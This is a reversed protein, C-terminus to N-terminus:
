AAAAPRRARRAADLRADHRRGSGVASALSTARIRGRRAQSFGFTRVEGIVTLEVPLGAGRLRAVAAAAVEHGKNPISGGTASWACRTASRSGTPARTSCTTTSAATSSRPDRSRPLYRETTWDAVAQSVAVVQVADSMTAFPRTEAGELRNHLWLVIHEALRRLALRDATVPDNAVVIPTSAARSISRLRSQSRAPVPRLRAVDMRPASRHATNAKRLVPPRPHASGHRLRVAHGEAFLTGGDDPTLITVPARPTSNARSIGRSPRSPAPGNGATTSASRYSSSRHADRSLGRRRRAFARRAPLDMGPGRWTLSEARRAHARAGRHGRVRPRPHTRRAPRRAGRIMARSSSDPEPSLEPTGGTASGVVAQGSALGELITLACPEDWRSPTVHIDSQPLRVRRDTRAGSSRHAHGRRRAARPRRHAFEASRLVSQASSFGFNTDGVLQLRFRTGRGAAVPVCADVLTDAGERRFAARSASPRSDTVRRETGFREADVGNLVVSSRLPSSTSRSSRAPLTPPQGRGLPAPPRRRVPSPLSRQVDRPQPVLARSRLDPRQQPPLGRDRSRQERRRRAAESADLEALVDHAYAWQDPRAWGNLRRRIRLLPASLPATAGSRTTLDCGLGHTRRSTSRDASWPATSARPSRRVDWMSSAPPSRAVSSPTFTERSNNVFAVTGRAEPSM